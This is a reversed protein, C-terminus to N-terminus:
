RCGSVCETLHASCSRMLASGPKGERAHKNSRELSLVCKYVCAHQPKRFPTGVDALESVRALCKMYTSLEGTCRTYHALPGGPGPPRDTHGSTGYLIWQLAIGAHHARRLLAEKLDPHNTPM